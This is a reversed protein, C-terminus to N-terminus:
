LVGGIWKALLWAGLCVGWFAFGWGMMAFLRPWSEFEVPAPNWGRRGQGGGVLDAAPETGDMVDDIVDGGILEEREEITVGEGYPSFNNDIRAYKGNPDNPM